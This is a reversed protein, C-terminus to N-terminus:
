NPKRISIIRGKSPNKQQYTFYSKELNKPPTWLVRGAANDTPVRLLPNEKWQWWFDKGSYHRSTCGLNDWAHWSRGSKCIYFSATGAYWWCHSLLLLLLVLPSSIIILHVCFGIILMDAFWFVFWKQNFPCSIWWLDNQFILAKAM